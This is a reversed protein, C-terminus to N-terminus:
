INEFMMYDFQFFVFGNKSQKIQDQTHFKIKEKDIQHNGSFSISCEKPDIFLISLEHEIDESTDEKLSFINWKKNKDLKYKDLLRIELNYKCNSVMDCKISIPIYHDDDCHCIFEYDISNTNCKCKYERNCIYFNNKHNNYYDNFCELYLVPDFKSIEELQNLYLDSYRQTNQITLFNETNM